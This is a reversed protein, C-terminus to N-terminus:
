GARRRSMQSKEPKPRPRSSLRTKFRYQEECPNSARNDCTSRGILRPACGRQGPGKKHRLKAGRGLGGSSGPIWQDYPGAYNRAASGGGLILSKIAQQAAPSSVLNKGQEGAWDATKDMVKYIGM